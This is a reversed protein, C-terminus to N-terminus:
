SSRWSPRRLSASGPVAASAIEALAPDSSGGIVVQGDVLSFSGVTTDDILRIADYQGPGTPVIRYSRGAVQVMGKVPSVKGERVSMRGDKSKGKTSPASRPQQAPKWQGLAREFAAVRVVVDIRGDPKAAQEVASAVESWVAAREQAFSRCADVLLSLGRQEQRTSAARSRSEPDSLKRAANAWATRITAALVATEVVDLVLGRLTHADSGNACRVFGPVDAEDPLPVTLLTERLASRAEHRSVLTDAVRCAEIRLAEDHESDLAILTLILARHDAASSSLADALEAFPYEGAARLEADPHLARLHPWLTADCPEPLGTTARILFYSEATVRVVARGAAPSFLATPALREEFDVAM